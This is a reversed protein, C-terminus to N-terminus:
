RQGMRLRKKGASIRTKEGQAPPAFTQRKTHASIRAGLLWRAMVDGPRLGTLRLAPRSAACLPVALLARSRKELGLVNLSCTAHDIRSVGARCGRIARWRM